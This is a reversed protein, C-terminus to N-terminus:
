AFSSNLGLDRYGQAKAGYRKGKVLEILIGGQDPYLALHEAAFALFGHELDYEAVLAAQIKAVCFFFSDFHQGDAGFVGLGSLKFEQGPYLNFL